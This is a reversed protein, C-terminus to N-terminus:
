AHIDADALLGFEETRSFSSHTGSSAFPCLRVKVGSCLKWTWLLTRTRRRARPLHSNYLQIPFQRDDGALTTRIASNSLGGLDGFNRQGSSLFGLLARCTQRLGPSPGRDDPGRTSSDATCCLLVQGIVAGALSRGVGQHLIEHDVLIKTIM